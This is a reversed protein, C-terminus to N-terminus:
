NNREARYVLGIKHTNLWLQSQVPSGLHRRRWFEQLIIDLSGCKWSFATGIGLVCGTKKAAVGGASVYDLVRDQVEIPLSQLPTGWILYDLAREPLYEADSNGNLLLEPNTYELTDDNPIRCLMIQKISLIMYNPEDCGSRYAHGALKQHAVHERAKSLGEELSMCIIVHVKGILVIDTASLFPEWAPFDTIWVYSQKGTPNYARKGIEEYIDFHLTSLSIVAKALIHLTKINYENRLIHRWQYSFDRLLRHSFARVREGVEVKSEWVQRELVKTPRLLQPFPLGPIQMDDLSVTREVLLPLPLKRRGNRNTHILVDNEMDFTWLTRYQIQRIDGFPNVTDYWESKFWKFPLDRRLV